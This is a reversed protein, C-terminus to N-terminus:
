EPRFLAAYARAVPLSEERHRLKLVLRGDDDPTVSEVARLNVIVSRHIQQFCDPDLRPLLDKLPTRILSQGEATVVAVYKDAASFYCVEDVPIMRIGKGVPARIWRLTEGGVGALKYLSEMLASVSEDDQLRGKVRQITQALRETAVPKMVYDVANQEFASIAQDDYATVFVTFTKIGKEVARAAVEIGTLGPMRIDLFAVSPKEVEILRLAEQGNSAEAVIDLEPWLTELRKRLDLLLLPEDDAILATPLISM